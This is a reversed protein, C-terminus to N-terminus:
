LPQRLPQMGCHPKVMLTHSGQAVLVLSTERPHCSVWFWLWYLLSTAKGCTYPLTFISLQLKQPLNWDTRDIGRQGTQSSMVLENNKILCTACALWVQSLAGSAEINYIATTFVLLCTPCGVVKRRGAKNSVIDACTDHHVPLSSPVCAQM